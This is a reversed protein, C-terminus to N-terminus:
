IDILLFSSLARQHADQTFSFAQLQLFYIDGDVDHLNAHPGNPEYIVMPGRVRHCYQTAI